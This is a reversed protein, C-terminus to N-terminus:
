KNIKLLFPFSPSLFPSFCQDTAEGVGGVLSRAWLGPRHGSQSDFWHVKPKHSLGWGVSGYWDPGDVNEKFFLTIQCTKWNRYNYVGVLASSVLNAFYTWLRSCPLVSQLCCVALEAVRVQLMYQPLSVVPCFDYREPQTPSHLYDTMPHPGGAVVSGTLTM